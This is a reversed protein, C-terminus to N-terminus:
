DGGQTEFHKEPTGMSPFREVLELISSRDWTPATIVRFFECVCVGVWKKKCVACVGSRARECAAGAAAQVTGIL